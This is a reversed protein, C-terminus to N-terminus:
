DPLPERVDPFPERVDPFPERVDPFPERVDRLPERVDKKREPLDRFRRLRVALAGHRDNKESSADGARRPRTKDRWSPAAPRGPCAPHLGGRRKYEGTQGNTRYM